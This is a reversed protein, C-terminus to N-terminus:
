RGGQRRRRGAGKRGERGLLFGTWEVQGDDGEGAAARGGGELGEWAGIGEFRGKLGRVQLGAAAGAAGQRGGDGRLPHLLHM